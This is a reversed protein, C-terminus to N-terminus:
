SKRREKGPPGLNIKRRDGKRRDGSARRDGDAGGRQGVLDAGDITVADAAPDADRLKRAAATTVLGLHTRVFESREADSPSSAPESAGRLFAEVAERTVSISRLKGAIWVDVFTCDGITRVSDNEM